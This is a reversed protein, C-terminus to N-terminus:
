RKRENYVTKPLLAIPSIAFIKRPGAHSPKM